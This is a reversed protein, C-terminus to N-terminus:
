ASKSFCPQGRCGTITLLGTQRISDRRWVPRRVIVPQRPWGHKLLDAYDRESRSPFLTMSLTLARCNELPLPQREKDSATDSFAKYPERPGGHQFAFHLLNVILSLEFDLTPVM